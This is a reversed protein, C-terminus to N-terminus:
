ITKEEIKRLADSAIKQLETYGGIKRIEELATMAIYLDADFDDNERYNNSIDVFSQKISEPEWGADILMRGFEELVSACNEYSESPNPLLEKVINYYQTYIALTVKM